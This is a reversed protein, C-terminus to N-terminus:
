DTTASWDGTLYDIGFGNATNDVVVRQDIDGDCSQIDVTVTRPLLEDGSYNPTAAYYLPCANADQGQTGDLYDRAITETYAMGGSNNVSGVNQTRTGTVMNNMTPDGGLSDALLHSRNFMWGNYDTSGSVQPLAPIHVEANNNWGAPDATIDQRGREKATARTDATLEGFACRARGLDDPECYDVHGYTPTYDREATGTVHYYDNEADVNTEPSNSFYDEDLFDACGTISVTLAVTSLAIGFPRLMNKFM